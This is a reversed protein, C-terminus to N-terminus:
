VKEGWGARRALYERQEVERREMREDMRVPRRQFTGLTVVCVAMVVACVTLSENFADAYAQRVALRKAPSLTQAATQLSALQSASVVGALDCRETVGLIATSAAIGISGGLVRVQAVIGQAVAASANTYSRYSPPTNLNHSLYTGNDRLESEATGLISVTSVTLGFGLGVFVGYTKPEVVLTNSLTSLLSTGILM